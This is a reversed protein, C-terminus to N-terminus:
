DFAWRVASKPFGQETWTQAARPRFVYTGYSEKSTDVRYGYKAEYADVIRDDWGHQEVEGEVIVVDDGSELHVVARPDRVINRGKQSSPDTSFWLVDDLWLAWVPAAHARGDARTTCLWYNRAGELREEAWSWPVLEAGSADPAAGYSAPMRPATARPENM